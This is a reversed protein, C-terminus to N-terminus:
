RRDNEPSPFYSFYGDMYVTGSDSVSPYTQDGVRAAVVSEQMVELDFSFIDYIWYTGTPCRYESYVVDRGNWDVAHLTNQGTPPLRVLEGPVIVQPQLIQVDCDPYVMADPPAGDPSADSVTAVDPLEADGVDVDELAGGDNNGAPSSDGCAACVALAALWAVCIIRYRSM